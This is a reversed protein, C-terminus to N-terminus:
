LEIVEEFVTVPHKEQETIWAKIEYAVSEKDYGHCQVHPVHDIANKGYRDILSMATDTDLSLMAHGTYGEGPRETITIRWRM